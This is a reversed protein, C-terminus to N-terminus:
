YKRLKRTTGLPDVFFSNWLFLYFMDRCMLLEVDFFTPYLVDPHSPDFVFLMFYFVCCHSPSDGVASVLLISVLECSTSTLPTISM